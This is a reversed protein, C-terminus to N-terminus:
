YISTDACYLRVYETPKKFKNYNRINDTGKYATILRLYGERGELVVQHPVNGEGLIIFRNYGYVPQATRYVAKIKTTPFLIGHIFDQVGQLTERDHSFMLHILGSGSHQNDVDQSGFM